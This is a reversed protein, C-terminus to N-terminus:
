IKTLTPGFFLPHTYFRPSLYKEQQAVGTSFPQEVEGRRRWLTAREQDYLLGPKYMLIYLGTERDQVIYLVVNSM